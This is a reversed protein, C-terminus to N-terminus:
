KGNFSVLLRNGNYLSSDWYGDMKANEKLGGNQIAVDVFFTGLWRSFGM